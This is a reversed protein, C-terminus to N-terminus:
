YIREVDWGTLALMALGLERNPGDRPSQRLHYRYGHEPDATEILWQAGDLGSLCGSSPTERLRTEDLVSRLRQIEATTLNRVLKRPQGSGAPRNFGAGGPRQKATLRYDGAGLSDVRVVVPDHFSRLWTFRVSAPSDAGRKYLSPEEFASLEMSYWEVEFDAQIPSRYVEGFRLICDNFRTQLAPPFYLTRQGSYWGAFLAASLVLLTLVVFLSRPM